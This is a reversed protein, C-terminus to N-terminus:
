HPAEKRPQIYRSFATTSCFIRSLTTRTLREKYAVLLNQIQFALIKGVIYVDDAGGRALLVYELQHEDFVKFFQIDKFCRATLWVKTLRWFQMKTSKRVPFLPPWSDKGRYRLYSKYDRVRLIQRSYRISIM